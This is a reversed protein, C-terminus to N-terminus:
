GTRSLVRKGRRKTNEVEVGAGKEKKQTKV